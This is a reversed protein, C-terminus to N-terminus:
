GGKIRSEGGGGRPERCGLTGWPTASHPDIGGPGHDLRGGRTPGFKLIRAESGHRVRTIGECSGLVMDGGVGGMDM